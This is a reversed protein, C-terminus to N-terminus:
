QEGDAWIESESEAGDEADDFCAYAAMEWLRLGDVAAALSDHRVYEGDGTKGRGPAKYWWAVGDADIAMERRTVRHKYLYLLPKGKRRLAGMVMLDAVDYLEIDPHDTLEREILHMGACWENCRGEWDPPAVFNSRFDDHNPM